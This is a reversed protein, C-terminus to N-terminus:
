KLSYIRIDDNIQKNKGNENENDSLMLIFVFFLKSKFNKMWMGWELYLAHCLLLVVNCGYNEFPNEYKLNYFFIFFLLAIM